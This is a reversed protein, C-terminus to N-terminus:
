WESEEANVKWWNRSSLFGNGVRELRLLLNLNGYNFSFFVLRQADDEKGRMQMVGIGSSSSSFTELYSPRPWDSEKMRPHMMYFSTPFLIMKM